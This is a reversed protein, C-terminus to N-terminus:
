TTSLNNLILSCEIFKKCKEMVAENQLMKLGIRQQIVTDFTPTNETESNAYVKQVDPFEGTYQYSILNISPDSSTMPTTTDDSTITTTMPAM